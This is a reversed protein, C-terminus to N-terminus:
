GGVMRRVWERRALRYAERKSEAQVTYPGGPGEFSAVFGGETRAATPAGYRDWGEVIRNAIATQLAMEWEEPSAELPNEVLPLLEATPGRLLEIPIQATKIQQMYRHVLHALASILAM